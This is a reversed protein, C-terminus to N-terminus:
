QIIIVTGSALARVPVGYYTTDDTSNYYAECYAIEDDSLGATDVVIKGSDILSTITDTQDGEWKLGYYFQDATAAPVPRLTVGSRGAGAPAKFSIRITGSLVPASAAEAKLSLGASQGNLLTTITGTQKLALSEKVHLTFAELQIDSLTYSAPTFSGGCALSGVTGSGNALKLEAKCTKPYTATGAAVYEGVTLKPTSFNVQKCTSCDLCAINTIKGAAGTGTNLSRGIVISNTAHIEVEDYSPLNLIGQEQAYGATTGIGLYINEAYLKFTGGEGANLLGKNVAYNQTAGSGSNRGLSFESLPAEPTGLVWQWNKGVSLTGNCGSTVPSTAIRMAKTVTISGNDVASLNVSGNASGAGARGVHFGVDLLNVYGLFAGGEQSYTGNVNIGTTSFLNAGIGFTAPTQAAGITVAVQNLSLNGDTSTGWWGAAWSGNAGQYSMQKCYAVAFTGAVDLSGGALTAIATKSGGIRLDGISVGDTLELLINEIPNIWYGGRTPANNYTGKADWNGSDSWANSDGAGSYLYFHGAATASSAVALTILQLLKKM